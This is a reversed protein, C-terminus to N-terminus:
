FPRACRLLLRPPASRDTRWVMGIRFSGGRNGLALGLDSKFENWRLHEFGDLGGEEPAVSRLAGADAVFLLNVHRLLWSPWFTLDGLFDGNIVYEANLLLLRNGVGLDGSFEKFRFAPITGVGGLEYSKQPPLDGHSTALRLRLNLNDYRGLPQYRRLDLVYQQFTFDGGMGGRDAVEATLFATWGEPGFRLRTATTAGITFAISRMAGDTIPPNPRFTKSGGFLAWDTASELSAYRDAHYALRGELFLPENKFDYSAFVSVGERGFYDRFDEHLFFAAASNEGRSIIWQDKSDLLSYGEMGVELVQDRRAPNLAFQRVVGLNGRWRHSSFGYGVSGYASFERRGDWYLRKESGLGVFVGEVRNYRLMLNDPLEDESQWPVRTRWILGPWRESPIEYYSREDPITSREDIAGTITAGLDPMARGGYVRVDGNVRSHDKLFLSGNYVELNGNVTGLLTVNGNRFAVAGDITDDAAITTDTSLWIRRIWTTDKEPPIEEIDGPTFDNTMRRIFTDLEKQFRTWFSVQHTSDAESEQAFASSLPLLFLLSLLLRKM